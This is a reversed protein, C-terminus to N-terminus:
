TASSVAAAAELQDDGWFLESGVATTPVGIVGLQIARETADRLQEKVESSEVGERVLERELGAEDAVELVDEPNRLGIGHVFNRAFAAHAFKRLRGHRDAIWAARLPILSYSEVPWGPPWRLAPLGYAEARRQCERIGADRTEERMSWPVRDHARLVFALAIPEWRVPLPLVDDVRSAALYAYPSNFDFYFVAQAV